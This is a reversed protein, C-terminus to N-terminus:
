IDDDESNDDEGDGESWEEESGGANAEAGGDGEEEEDEDYVEDVITEMEELPTKFLAQSASCIDRQIQAQEVAYSALGEQLACDKPKRLAQRETWWQAKSNLFEVFRRMEERLLCVEETAQNTRARSKAWEARLIEDSGGDGGDEYEGDRREV